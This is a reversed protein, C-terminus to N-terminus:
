LTCKPSPIQETLQYEQRQSRRGSSLLLWDLLINKVCNKWDPRVNFSGRRGEVVFGLGAYTLRSGQCAITVIFRSFAGKRDNCLGLSDGELIYM